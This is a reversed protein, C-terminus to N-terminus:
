NLYYNRLLEALEFNNVSEKSGISLANSKLVTSKNNFEKSLKGHTVMIDDADFESRLLISKVWTMYVRPPVSGGHGSKGHFDVNLILEVIKKLLWQFLLYYMVIYTIM